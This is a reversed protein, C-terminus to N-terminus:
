MVMLDNFGRRRQTLSLGGESLHSKMRIKSRFNTQATKPKSVNKRRGISGNAIKKKCRVPYPLGRSFTVRKRVPATAKDSSPTNKAKAQHVFLVDRGEPRPQPIAALRTLMRRITGMKERLWMLAPARSQSIGIAPIM